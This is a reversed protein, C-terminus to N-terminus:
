SLDSTRARGIKSQLQALDTFVGAQRRLEVDIM